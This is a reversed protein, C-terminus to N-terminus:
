DEASEIDTVEGNADMEHIQAMVANFKRIFEERRGWRLFCNRHISGGCFNWLPDRKTLFASTHIADAHPEVVEGCVLCVTEYRAEPAEDNNSIASV